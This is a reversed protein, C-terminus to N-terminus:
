NYINEYSFLDPYPDTRNKSYKFKYNLSAEYNIPQLKM